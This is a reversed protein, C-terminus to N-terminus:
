KKLKRVLAKLYVVALVGLFGSAIVSVIAQLYHYGAFLFIARIVFVLWLFISLALGFVASVISKNNM